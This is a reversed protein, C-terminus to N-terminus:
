TTTENQAFRSAVLKRLEAPVHHGIRFPHFLRRLREFAAQACEIGALDGISIIGMLKGREIIPIHRMPGTKLSCAAYLLAM